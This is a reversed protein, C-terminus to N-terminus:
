RARRVRVYLAGEGGHSLGAPEFGIVYPRFEPLSLWLPVQRQLVGRAEGDSRGRTGKGTIVLVFKARNGQARRLFRLLAAHAEAQSRGHLDIRADIAQTGRALRQKQRRDLREIGLV